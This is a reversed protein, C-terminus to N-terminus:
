CFEALAAALYPGTVSDQNRAVQEPTGEAMLYGGAEGGDPGLDIIWDASKAMHMNHEIVVVTNGNDILKRLSGLLTSIDSTHLGTTPEDLIFLTHMDTKRSLFSALKLRQNEGGSLTSSSQGLPLYGLGVDLLPALLGKIKSSIKLHTDEGFFTYAESVTMELIDSISKNRYQVELVERKFRKGKCIDCPLQMDAMFQMPITIVGEGKCEECRGGDTNFSFYSSTFHMQKALPMSAFLTRVEDYIGLYTAANSRTSTGIPNQDVMEVADIADMHGTLGQHTGPLDGSLAIRRAMAKYLIDRVLSSKGSGSVGTVVTLVGLPFKVTINKLNNHAAKEVTIYKRWPHRMEPVPIGDNGSLHALTKSRPYRAATGCDVADQLTGAYILEGGKAGADPGIDVLYDASRMIEEDHEVVLVTNGIDRLRHLVSILRDTDRPHLGISPEDLVYLSGVLGSGLSTSLKIRQSEGGSLTAWPRSLTLYGLGVDDLYELRNTIERLLRSAVARETDSLQLGSFVGRLDKVPIDLLESISYGSVKVYQASPKLRTGHCVPCVTRGRYRAKLVRYQIKYQNLDVFHFFGDIGKWAGSGHWLIDREKDSLDKYPTHVPFDLSPALSMLERRWEGMKEGNWCQVAGQYISLDKDPVVLDESIGLVRGFGECQSCAGYPNNFNFMLDTPERFVIGDAEFRASYSFEKKQGDSMWCMVICEDHGEYYATELSDALRARFDKDESTYTGISLRDILLRYYSACLPTKNEIDNNLLDSIEIIEGRHELRTFGEKLYVDLQEDFTRSGPLTIPALIVIRTGEPFALVESVIDEVSYRRVERGTVPSYTHGIRAYLMRLYDYIETATGVTSRPNRSANKQEIAIAPPLGLIYDCEPKPIRGLFQRAYASLSEVYRRRGEAYLTDFALSSKGSGSVGTVVIFKDEPLNLDINKLNNARAGKIEIM